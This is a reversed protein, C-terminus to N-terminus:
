GRRRGTLEAATGPMSRNRPRATRYEGYLVYTTLRVGAGRGPAVPFAPRDRRGVQAIVQPPQAPLLPPDDKPPPGGRRRGPGAPRSWGPGPSHRQLNECGLVSAEGRGPLGRKAALEIRPVAAAGPM